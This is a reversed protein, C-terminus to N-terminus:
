GPGDYLWTCFHCKTHVFICMWYRVTAICWCPQRPKPKNKHAFVCNYNTQYSSRRGRKVSYLIQTCLYHGCFTSVTGDTFPVPVFSPIDCVYYHWFEVPTTMDIDLLVCESSTWDLPTDFCVRWKVSIQLCRSLQFVKCNWSNNILQWWQRIPSYWRKPCSHQRRRRPWLSLSSCFESGPTTFLLFLGGRTLLSTAVSIYSNAHLHFCRSLVIDCGLCGTQVSVATIAQSDLTCAALGV